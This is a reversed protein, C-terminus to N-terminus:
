SLVIIQMHKRAHIVFLHSVETWKPSDHDMPEIDEGPLVLAAMLQSSTETPRVWAHQDGCIGTKM